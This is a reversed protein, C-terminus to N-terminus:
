CLMNYFAAISQSIKRPSVIDTDLANDIGVRTDFCCVHLNARCDADWRNLNWQRLRVGTRIIREWVYNM